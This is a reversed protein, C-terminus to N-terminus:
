IARKIGNSFREAISPRQFRKADDSRQWQALAAKMSAEEEIVRRMAQAVARDDRADVGLAFPYDNFYGDVAAGKPYIIPLGAFLAEIFVLGFSERLSPLVFGRAARMEDRLAVRDMAGTLRVSRSGQVIRDCLARHKADGGGIVRVTLPNDGAELFNTARVLGMLNKRKYSNLHFVSVLGEGGPQPEIPCDLDTPCPLFTPKLKPTGLRQTIWNWAWITFPFIAQAEHLVQSIPGVLDRRISLIKTDSDGQICVGYPLGLRRAAIQVVLGEICLKHGIILDPLRPFTTLYHALWEGLQELKTQHRLGRSPARYALATGYDFSRLDLGIPLPRLVEHLTGYFGPSRRNISVVHHVCDDNTLDVLSRIVTTKAPQISDPFDGSVHVIFPKSSSLAEISASM